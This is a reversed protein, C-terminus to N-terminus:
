RTPNGSTNAEKNAQGNNDALSSVQRSAVITNASELLKLFEEKGIGADAEEPTMQKWFGNTEAAALYRGYWWKGTDMGISIWSADNAEVKPLEFKEKWEVVKTAGLALKLAEVRSIAQKPLFPSNEEEYYGRVLDLESAINISKYYRNTPKVDPYLIVPDLKIEFNTRSSFAFLCTGIDLKCSRLFGANKKELQLYRVTLDTAEGRSIFKAPSEGALCLDMGSVVILGAAM